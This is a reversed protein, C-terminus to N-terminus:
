RKYFREPFMRKTYVKTGSGPYLKNRVPRYMKRDGKTSIYNGCVADEEGTDFVCVGVKKSFDISSIFERRTRDLKSKFDSYTADDLESYGDVVYNYDDRYKHEKGLFASGDIYGLKELNKFRFDSSLLHGYTRGNEGKTVLFTHCDDIPYGRGSVVRCDVRAFYNDLLLAALKTKGVISGNKECFTGVADDAYDAVQYNRRSFDEVDDITIERADTTAAINEKIYDLIMETKSFSTLADACYVSPVLQPWVTGVIDRMRDIRKRDFKYEPCRCLFIYDRPNFNMLYRDSFYCDCSIRSLNFSCFINNVNLITRIDHDDIHLEHHTKSKRLKITKMLENFNRGTTFISISGRKGAIHELKRLIIDCEDINLKRDLYFEVVNNSSGFQRTIVSDDLCCLAEDTIIVTYEYEEGPLGPFIDIRAGM